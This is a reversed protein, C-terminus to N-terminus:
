LMDRGLHLNSEHQIHNRLMFGATELIDLSPHLYIQTCSINVHGLYTALIPLYATPDKGTQYFESLWRTAFAHRIDHLRPPGGQAGKLDLQRVLARFTRSVTNYTCRKARENVFFPATPKQDHGFDARRNQYKKLTMVSSSSLPVLRSKFFKTQRIHLIDEQFNVDELNLRLAEGIRLGCVWLLGILTAYTHSRLAGSPGLNEALQILKILEKESYIYPIIKTRPPPVLARDPIYTSPDLQFLFRCFQRLHSIRDCRSSIELHRTTELYDVVMPRTVTKAEPYHKALYCDFDNLAHDANKIIFGLSRRLELHRKMLSGLPGSFSKNMIAGGKAAM